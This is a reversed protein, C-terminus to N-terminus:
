SPTMLVVIAPFRRPYVWYITFIENLVYRTNQVKHKKHEIVVSSGVM